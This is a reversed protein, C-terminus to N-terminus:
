NVLSTILPKSESAPRGNNEIEIVRQGQLICHLSDGHPAALTWSGPFYLVLLYESQSHNSIGGLIDHGGSDHGCAAALDITTAGNTTYNGGPVIPNDLGYVSNVM